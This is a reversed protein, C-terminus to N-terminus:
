HNAAFEASALMAWALQGLATAKRDPNAKVYDAVESREADSPMRTLVSLYLEDAAAGADDLKSLRDVLNGEHPELLALVKEDNSLFLAAKLSPSVSEEPDGAENALAAVFRKTLEKRAADDIKAPGTAALVADLLQEASLRRELAVTFAQEPPPKAGEAKPLLSSRQYTQTLALERLLWKIDFKHAVFESALLDLVEPHSPPNKSHNLDLPHVLGRGLMIFWLRNVANRVFSPNDASPIEKAFESLPSFKPVGPLHKSKDPPVLWEQGKEFTPIAIEQKGPVRPGTTKQVDKKFVSVFEVKQTLVGEAVAPFKAQTDIALNKYTIYMGQFDAQKYDKVFLHDHCQACQFDKGLFLRGVDRTLGPYDIPNQGYHELRKTYFYAAARTQEDNRDPKLIERALQDWPKNAKFSAELYTLWAVDDGRREMLMINFLDRMRRAYRDSALLTDILKARKDPAKDNLFARADDASPITGAFDLWVRRLFEADDAVKAVAWGETKAKAAVLEDIREHLGGSGGSGGSGGTTAADGGALAPAAITAIATLLTLNFLYRHRM